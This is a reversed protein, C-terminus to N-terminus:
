RGGGSLALAPLRGEDIATEIMAAIADEEHKFRPKWFEEWQAISPTEAWKGALMRADFHGGKGHGYSDDATAPNTTFWYTWPEDTGDRYVHYVKVEKHKLFIDPEIYRYPM